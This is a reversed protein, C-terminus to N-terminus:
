LIDYTYFSCVGLEDYLDSTCTCTCSWQDNSWPVTDIETQYKSTSRPM